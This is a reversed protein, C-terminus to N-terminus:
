KSMLEDMQTSTARTEREPRTIDRVQRSLEGPARGLPGSRQEPSPEAEPFPSLATEVAKAGLGLGEMQLQRKEEPDDTTAAKGFTEGAQKAIPAASVTDLAAGGVILAGGAFPAVPALVAGM